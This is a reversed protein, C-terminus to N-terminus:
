SMHGICILEPGVGVGVPTDRQEKGAAGGAGSGVGGISYVSRSGQAAMGLAKGYDSLRQLAGVVDQLVTADETMWTVLKDRCRVLRHEVPESPMTRVLEQWFLKPEEVSNGSLLAWDTLLNKGFLYLDKYGADLQMKQGAIRLRVESQREVGAVDAFETSLMELYGVGDAWTGDPAVFQLVRM